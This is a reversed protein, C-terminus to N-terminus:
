ACLGIVLMASIVIVVVIVAPGVCLCSRTRPCIEGPAVIWIFGPEFAARIVVAIISPTCVMITVATVPPLRLGATQQRYPM